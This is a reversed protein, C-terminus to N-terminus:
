EPQEKVPEPIERQLFVVFGANRPVVSVIQWCSYSTNLKNEAFACLLKECETDGVCEPTTGFQVVKREWKKM